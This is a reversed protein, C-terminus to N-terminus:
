FGSGGAAGGAGGGGGGAGGTRMGTGATTSQQNNRTTRANLANNQDNQSSSSNKSSTGNKNFMDQLVPLVDTVEANELPIVYVNQKKSTDGDLQAIMAAIQPMLDGAASIIISSTRQDPVAIVQGKKKMRDSTPTQTTAANGQNFFGGGFGGRFRVAAQNQDATKSDDPFLQAFLAATEVPDANSLHFVRLETVDTVSVDIERVLQEITPMYEDPASVVLSNSRDDAVASVHPVVRQATNDTSGGGGGGGPGGGGQGGFGRFFQRPNNGQQQGTAPVAFLDKVASALDKADAYKLPFVRVTSLSSVSTDLANVIEVMRRVNARTDTLVLANASDNATLTAYAPKLPELDKVLQAVNAYRVPIIQTVMEDTKPIAEPNNGPTVPINRKKAEDRSMITLTRGNRVAAYGNRNLAADLVAVAEDRTLPHNNWVDVKGKVETELVITFGAAKSLYDLVMELPAGRFNLRLQDDSGSEDTAVVVNTTVTQKASDAMENTPSQDPPAPQANLQEVAPANTPDSAQPADNTQGISVALTVWSLGLLLTCIKIAKM